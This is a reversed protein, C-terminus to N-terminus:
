REIGGDDAPRRHIPNSCDGAHTIGGAHYGPGRVYECGRVTTLKLGGDMPVDGPRDGCSVCLLSVAVVVVALAKM